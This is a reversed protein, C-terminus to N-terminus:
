ASAIIGADRLSQLLADFEADTPAAGAANPVAVGQTIEVGDLTLTDTIFEDTQLSGKFYTPTTM